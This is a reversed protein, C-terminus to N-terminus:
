VSTFYLKSFISSMKSIKSTKSGTENTWFCIGVDDYCTSFEVCTVQRTLLVLYGIVSM